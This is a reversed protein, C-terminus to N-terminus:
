ALYLITLYFAFGFTFLAIGAAVMGAKLNREATERDV